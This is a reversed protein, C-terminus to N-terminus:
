IVIKTHSARDEVTKNAVSAPSVAREALVAEYSVTSALALDRLPVSATAPSSSVACSLFSVQPTSGPSNISMPTYIADTHSPQHNERRDRDTEELPAKGSHLELEQPSLAFKVKMGAPLFHRPPDVSRDAQSQVGTSITMQLSSPQHPIPSKLCSKTISTHPLPNTSAYSRNRPTPEFYSSGEQSLCTTDVEVDSESSLCSSPSPDRMEDCGEDLHLQEFEVTLAHRIYIRQFHSEIDNEDLAIITPPQRIM